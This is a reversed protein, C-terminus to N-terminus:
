ELLKSDYTHSKETEDVNFLADMENKRNELATIEFDRLKEILRAFEKWDLNGRDHLYNQCQTLHKKFLLILEELTGLRIDFCYIRPLFDNGVFFCIMIFDDIIRNINYPIKMKQKLESYELDM